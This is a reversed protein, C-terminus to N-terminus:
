RQERLDALASEHAQAVLELDRSLRAAHMGLAVAESCADENVVDGHDQGCLPSQPPLEDEDFQRGGQLLIEGLDHVTCGFRFKQLRRECIAVTGTRLYINYRTLPRPVPRSPHHPRDPPKSSREFAVVAAARSYQVEQLRRREALARVAPLQLMSGGSAVGGNNSARPRQAAAAAAAAPAASQKRKM